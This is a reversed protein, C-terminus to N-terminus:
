AAIPVYDEPFASAGFFWSEIAYRTNPMAADAATTHLFMEDFLLVDGAEFIPRVVGGDGAAERAIDEHIQISIETGETGAPLIEDIRKPVIDMGPADDGCHTLAMWVNLAKVEGMFSGDQHWGRGASPPTKRLTCKQDSIAAAEGLYADILDGLGAESFAALMKAHMVPSDAALLGGGDGIWERNVTSFYPADPEFEEYWGNADGNARSEHVAARIEYAREIDAALSEAVERPVVGRILLCGNQLLAGRIMEPTADSLTTEPVVGPEPLGSYDPDPYPSSEKSEGAMRAGAWHRLELIRSAIDPDERKVPDASLKEIEAFIADLSDFDDVAVAEPKSGQFSKLNGIRKRKRKAKGKFLM